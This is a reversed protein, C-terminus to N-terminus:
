VVARTQDKLRQVAAKLGRTVVDRVDTSGWSGDIRQRIQVRLLLTEGLAERLGDRVAQQVQAETRWLGIRRATIAAVCRDLGASFGHAFTTACAAEIEAAGATLIGDVCMTVLDAELQGGGPLKVVVGEHDVIQLKFLPVSM